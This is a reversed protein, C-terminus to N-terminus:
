CQVGHSGDRRKDHRCLSCKYCAFSGFGPCLVRWTGSPYTLDSRQIRIIAFVTESFSVNLDSPQIIGNVPDMAAAVIGVHPMAMSVNNVIRQFQESLVSMNQVNTWSGKLTTNDYLMGVPDPRQSMNDSGNGSGIDDVWSTLYQMYNHYAQASHQIQICTQPGNDPDTKLPIPTNCHDMIYYPNAFSTSVKGYMLRSETKGFKLVPVVLADSATTYTMAMLALLLAFMGLKTSAGYRVSEWRSIITGVYIKSDARTKPTNSCSSDSLDPLAHLAMQECHLGQLESSAPM